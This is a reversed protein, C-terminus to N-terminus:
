NGAKLLPHDLIGIVENPADPAPQVNFGLRRLLAVSRENQADAWSVLRPLRLTNFAHDIVAHAAETAYGQGWYDRGLKYFLEVEPSSLPQREWLYLQLGCYGIFRGEDKLTVAFCGIGKRKLELIRYQLEEAREERTRQRGPDYRWVDPHGELVTYAADLDHMTYPRLLLRSTTLM